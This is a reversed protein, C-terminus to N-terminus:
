FLFNTVLEARTSNIRISLRKLHTNNSLVDGPLSLKTLQKKILFFNVFFLTLLYNLFKQTNFYNMYINQAGQNRYSLTKLAVTRNVVM